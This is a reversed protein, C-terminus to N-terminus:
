RGGLVRRGPDTIRVRAAEITRPGMAIRSPPRWRWEVRVLIFLDKASLHRRASKRCSPGARAPTQNKGEVSRRASLWGPVGGALQLGVHEALSDATEVHLQDIVATAAFALARLPHRLGLPKGRQHLPDVAAGSEGLDTFNEGMGFLLVLDEFHLRQDEDAVCHFLLEVIQTV